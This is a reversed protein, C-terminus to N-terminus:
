AEQKSSAEAKALASRAAKEILSLCTFHLGTPNRQEFEAKAAIEKLAQVLDDHANAARCAFAANAESMDKALIDKGNAALIISHERGYSGDGMVMILNAYTWPKQGADAAASVLKSLRTDDTM